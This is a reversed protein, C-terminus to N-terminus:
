KTKRKVMLLCLSHLRSLYHHHIRSSVFSLRYLVRLCVANSIPCIPFHPSHQSVPFIPCLIKFLYKHIIHFSPLIHALNIKYSRSNIMSSLIMMAIDSALEIMNNYLIKINNYNRIILLSSASIFLDFNDSILLDFFFHIRSFKQCSSTLLNFSFYMSMEAYLSVIFIALSKICFKLM